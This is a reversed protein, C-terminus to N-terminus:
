PLNAMREQPSASMDGRGQSILDIQPPNSKMSYIDDITDNINADDDSKSQESLANRYPISM